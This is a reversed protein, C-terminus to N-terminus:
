CTFGGGTGFQNNYQPEATSVVEFLTMTYKEELEPLGRLMDWRSDGDEWTESRPSCMDWFAQRRIVHCGQLARAMGLLSPVTVM